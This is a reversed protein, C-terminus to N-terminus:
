AETFKGSLIRSEHINLIFKVPVCSFLQVKNVSMDVDFDDQM